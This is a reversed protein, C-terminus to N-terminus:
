AVENLIQVNDACCRASMIQSAHLITKPLLTQPADLAHRCLLM